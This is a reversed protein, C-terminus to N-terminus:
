KKLCDTWNLIVNLQRPVSGPGHQIMLFRKGDPTGDALVSEPFQDFPRKLLAEAPRSGDAPQTYIDWDGGRNSSFIIRAGDRSWLPLM